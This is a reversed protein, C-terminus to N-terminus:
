IYMIVSNLLENGDYGGLLVVQDRWSVTAMQTLPYPLPNMETFMSTKSNFALVSESLKGDVEGGIILVRDEFVECCHYQRFQPIFSLM